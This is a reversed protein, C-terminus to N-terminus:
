PNERRVADFIPRLVSPSNLIQLETAISDNGDAGTLGALAAVAPSQSLLGGASSPNQNQNLVIQFEGQYVPKTSILYLGSLILGLTGGSAIWSWRRTLANAVQRLDIEDDPGNQNPLLLTNSSNNTM